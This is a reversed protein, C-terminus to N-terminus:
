RTYDENDAIDFLVVQNVYNSILALGWVMPNTQDVRLAAIYPSDTIDREIEGVENELDRYNGLTAEAQLDGPKNWLKIRYELLLKGCIKRFLSRQIDLSELGQDIKIGFRTRYFTEAIFNAQYGYCSFGYDKRFFHLTELGKNHRAIDQEYALLDTVASMQSMTITRNGLLGYDRLTKWLM